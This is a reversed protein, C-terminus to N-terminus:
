QGLCFLACYPPRPSPSTQVLSLWTEFKFDWQLVQVSYDVWKVSYCSLAYLVIVVFAIPHRNLTDQLINAEKYRTKVTTPGPSSYTGKATMSLPKISYKMCLVQYNESYQFLPQRAMNGNNHYVSAPSAYSMNCWPLHWPLISVFVEFHCLGGPVAKLLM